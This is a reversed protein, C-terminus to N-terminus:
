QSIAFYQCTGGMGESAGGCGGGLFALPDALPAIVAKVTEGVGRHGERSRELQGELPSLSSIFAVTFIILSLNVSMPRKGTPDWSFANRPSRHRFTVPRAHSPAPRSPPFCHERGYRRQRRRRGQQRRRRHDAEISSQEAADAKGTPGTVPGPLALFSEHLICLQGPSPGPPGPGAEGLKCEPGNAM